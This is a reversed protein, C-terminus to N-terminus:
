LVWALVALIYLPLPALVWTILVPLLRPLLRPLLKTMADVM